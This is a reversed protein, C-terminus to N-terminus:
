LESGLSLREASIRVGYGKLCTKAVEGIRLSTLHLKRQFANTFAVGIAIAFLPAGVLPAWRGAAQGVSAIM